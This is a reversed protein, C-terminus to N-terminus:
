KMNIVDNGTRFTVEQTRTKNRQMYIETTYHESKKQIHMSYNHEAHRITMEYTIRKIHAYTKVCIYCKAHSSQVYM